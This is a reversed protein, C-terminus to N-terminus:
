EDFINYVYDIYAKHKDSWEFKLRYTKGNNGSNLSADGLILGLGYPLLM